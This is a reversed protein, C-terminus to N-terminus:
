RNVASIVPVGILRAWAATSAAQIAPAANGLPAWWANSVALILTPAAPGHDAAIAELWTWSFLQEACISAWVRQGDLAFTHQWWAPRLGHIHASESWPLWDGGILVAAARAQPRRIPHGPRVAVLADYGNASAGILWTSHRSVGDFRMGDALYQQTGPWWDDLLGEGFVLVPEDLRTGRSGDALIAQWNAIERGVNWRAPQIHTDVGLWDPPPPLPCYGINLPIAVLALLLLGIGSQARRRPLDALLVIAVVTLGIGIWGTNPFLVGAANLPSEWGILGLPPLATLALALLARLWTSAFAWPLALLLSAGVWASVALVIVDPVPAGGAAPAWYGQIAGLLPWSCQGYYLLAALLRSRLKPALACALPMLISLAPGALGSGAHLWAFGALGAVAISASGAITTGHNFQHRNM